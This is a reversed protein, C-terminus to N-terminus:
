LLMLVFLGALVMSFFVMLFSGLRLRQRALFLGGSFNMVAGLLVATLMMWWYRRIDLLFMVTLVLILLAATLSTQKLFLQGYYEKEEGELPGRHLNRGSIGFDEDRM